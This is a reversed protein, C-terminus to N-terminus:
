KRNQVILQALIAFFITQIGFLTSGLVLNVNEVPKPSGGLMWNIIQFLFVFAGLGFFTMGIPVFIRMPHVSAIVLLIQPIVKFPYKFSIFSRGTKRSHFAVPVHAFRMHKHYADLLVQQTYNYDGPIFSVALYAKNVAFIGPQSDKIPWGTLHRMLSSFVINGIRRVFPMKYDIREHRNGYVIDAEDDLIPQIIALIDKPDHQLDADFKILIDFGDKRANELGTRVAAGLGRNIRHRLIKDAGAKHALDGTKDTSGDDIVHIAMQIHRKKLDDEISRLGKVTKAISKAENLAPVIVVLKLSAPM